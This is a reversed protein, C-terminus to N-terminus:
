PKRYKRRLRVGRRRHFEYYEQERARRRKFTAAIAELGVLRKGVALAKTDM